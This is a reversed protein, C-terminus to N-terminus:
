TLGGEGPAGRNGSSTRVGAAIAQAVDEQYRRQRPAEGRRPQLPVLTEVLIAPMKAGLLVYFLAEKTGLDKM